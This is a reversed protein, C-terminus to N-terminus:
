RSLRVEPESGIWARHSGLLWQWETQLVPQGDSELVLEDHQLLEWVAAEAIAVQGSFPQGTSMEASLALVDGLTVPGAALRGFLRQKLAEATPNRVATQKVSGLMRETVDQGHKQVNPWGRGMAIQDPRLPPGEFVIVRTKEPIWEKDGYSVAHGSTLPLLFRDNLDAESLNYARAQDSSMRLELHYM